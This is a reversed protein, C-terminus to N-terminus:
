KTPIDLGLCRNVPPGTLRQEEPNGQVLGGWTQSVALIWCLCSPPVPPVPLLVTRSAPQGDGGRAEVRSGSLYQDLTTSSTVAERGRHRYETSPFLKDLSM